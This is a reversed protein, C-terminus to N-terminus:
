GYVCVGKLLLRFYVVVVFLLCVYCLVFVFGLDFVFHCGFGGLCYVTVCLGCEVWCFLNLSVWFWWDFWYVMFLGFLVVFVCLCLIVVVLGDAIWVVLVALGFLGGVLWCGVFSNM